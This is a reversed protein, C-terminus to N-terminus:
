PWRCKHRRSPHTLAHPKVSQQKWTDLAKAQCTGRAKAALVLKFIERRLPLDRCDRSVERCGTSVKAFVSSLTRMSPDTYTRERELKAREPKRWRVQTECLGDGCSSKHVYSFCRACALLDDSGGFRFTLNGRRPRSCHGQALEVRRRWVTGCARNWSSM